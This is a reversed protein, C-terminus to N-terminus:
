GLCLWKVQGETRLGHEVWPKLIIVDGAEVAHEVGDLSVLGAGEIIYWIEEREHRHPRFPNAPTTVRVALHQLLGQQGGIPYGRRGNTEPVTACHIIM